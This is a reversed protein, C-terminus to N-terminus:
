GRGGGGAFLQLPCDGREVSMMKDLYNRGEMATAGVGRGEERTTSVM